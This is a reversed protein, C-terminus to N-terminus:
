TQMFFKWAIASAELGGFLVCCKLAHFKKVKRKRQPDM